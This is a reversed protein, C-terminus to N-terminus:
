HQDSATADKIRQQTQDNWYQTKQQELGQWTDVFEKSKENWEGYPEGNPVVYNSENINNQKESEKSTDNQKQEEIYHIIKKYIEAFWESTIEGCLYGSYVIFLVDVPTLEPNTGLLAFGLGVGVKEGIVHGLLRATVEGLDHSEAIAKGTHYFKYYNLIKHAAKAVAEAQLGDPDFFKLPNNGAYAYLNMEQPNSLFRQLKEKEASGVELLLPDVSVFRGIHGALYRAEFYYLESECDREKGTFRYDTTSTQASACIEKRPYGYPYNVFQETVTGHTNLTLTTSGLHDYLYFSTPKSTLSSDIGKDFSAVRRDADYIYKILKADRVEAYKDVYIFEKTSGDQTDIVTKKKRANAYDYIYNAAKLKNEIDILRNKHDWHLTMESTSIINGNNDYSTDTRSNVLITM